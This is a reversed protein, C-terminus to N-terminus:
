SSREHGEQAGELVDEGQSNEVSTGPESAQKMDRLIEIKETIKEFNRQLNEQLLQYSYNQTDDRLYAENKRLFRLAVDCVREAFILDHDKAIVANVFDDIMDILDTATHITFYSEQDLNILRDLISLIEEKTFNDSVLYSNVMERSVATMKDYTEEFLKLSFETMDQPRLLIESFRSFINQFVRIFDDCPVQNRTALKFLDDFNSMFDEVMISKLPNDEYNLVTSFNTAFRSLAEQTDHITSDRQMMMIALAFELNRRTLLNIEHSERELLDDMADFDRLISEYDVEEENFNALRQMLSKSIAIVSRDEILRDIQEQYLVPNKKRLRSLSKYLLIKYDLCKDHDDQSLSPDYQIRSVYSHIDVAFNTFYEYNRYTISSNYANTINSFQAFLDREDLNEKLWNIVDIFNEKKCCERLITSDNRTSLNLLMSIIESLEKRGSPKESFHKSFAMAVAKIQNFSLAPFEQAEIETLSAKAFRAMEELAQYDGETIAKKIFKTYDFKLKKQAGSTISRDFSEEKIAKIIKTRDPHFILGSIDLGGGPLDDFAREQKLFKAIKEFGVQFDLLDQLSEIAPNPVILYKASVLKLDVFKKSSFHKCIMGLSQHLARFLKIYSDRDPNEQYELYEKSLFGFNRFNMKEAYDLTKEAAYEVLYVPITKKAIAYCNFASILDVLVLDAEETKSDRDQSSLNIKLAEKIRELKQSADIDRENIESLFNFSFDKDKSNISYRLLAKEVNEFFSQINDMEVVGTEQSISDQYIELIEQAVADVLVDNNSIHLIEILKRLDAMSLDNLPLNYFIDSVVKGSVIYDILSPIHAHSGDYVVESLERILKERLINSAISSKRTSVLFEISSVAGPACLDLSSINKLQGLFIAKEEESKLSMDNNHSVLLCYEMIAQALLSVTYKERGDIRYAVEDIYKACYKRLSLFWTQNQEPNLLQSKRAFLNERQELLDQNDPAQRLAADIRQIEHHVDSYSREFNLLQAHSADYDETFIGESVGQLETLILSFAERSLDPEGVDKTYLDDFIQIFENRRAEYFSSLESSNFNGSGFISYKPVFSRPGDSLTFKSFSTQDAIESHFPNFRPV